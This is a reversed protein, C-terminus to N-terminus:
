AKVERYSVIREIGMSELLQPGPDRRGTIVESIQSPYVNLAQAAERATDYKQVRTRIREIVQERTM